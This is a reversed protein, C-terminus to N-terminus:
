LDKKELGLFVNKINRWKQNRDGAEDAKHAIPAQRQQPRPDKGITQGRSNRALLCFILHVSSRGPTVAMDELARHKYPRERSQESSTEKPLHSIRPKKLLPDTIEEPKSPKPHHTPSPNCNNRFSALPAARGGWYPHETEQLPRCLFLSESSRALHWFISSNTTGPQDFSKYM